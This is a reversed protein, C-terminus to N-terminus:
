VRVRVGVGVRDRVLDDRLRVEVPAGLRLRSPSVASEGLVGAM